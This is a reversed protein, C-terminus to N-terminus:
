NCMHGCQSALCFNYVDTAGPNPFGATNACVNDCAQYSTWEYCAVVPLKKQAGLVNTRITYIDSAFWQTTSRVVGPVKVHHCMVSGWPATTCEKMPLDDGPHAVSHGMEHVFTQKLSTQSKIGTTNASCGDKATVVVQATATGNSPLARWTIGEDRSSFNDGPIDEHCIGDATMAREHVLVKVIGSQLPLNQDMWAKTQDRSWIKKTGMDVLFNFSTKDQVYNLGTGHQGADVLANLLDTQLNNYSFFHNSYFATDYYFRVKISGELVYRPRGDAAATQTYLAALALAPLLKRALTLTM